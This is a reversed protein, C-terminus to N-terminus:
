GVTSMANLVDNGVAQTGGFVVGHTLTATQSQLYNSIAAPLQGSSPVLLMPGVNSPEGELVGGSLADPFRLATAAGFSTAKPFFTMAVAASTGFADQGYIATAGPDAGAAAKAGGVAYRTRAPHAALYAATAPAQVNGATLLIAGHAQIAAPVASLADAFNLGTAEFITTPNGLQQAVAVATAYEDAGYVRRVDYGLATLTADIAPSLAAPGGLVYVTAGPTLVRRIEALVRADLNGGAGGGPTILLPGNVSAALPGGALADAFRDSRAVVVAGASHATPFETASIAISTALADAGSIRSMQLESSWLFATGGGSGGSGGGPSAPPSSTAGFTTDINSTAPQGATVNVSTANLGSAVDPYWWDQCSGGPPCYIFHVVYSGTGLGLVTYNGSGNTGTQTGVSPVDGIPYAVVTVGALPHGSADSVHGALMGGVGLHGDVGTTPGHGVTVPTAAQLTSANHYIAPGYNTLFPAECGYLFSVHYTGPSLGDVSYTGDSATTAEPGFVFDRNAPDIFLICVGGLPAGDPGTVTGTISGITAGSGTIAFLSVLRGMGAGALENPTGLPALEDTFSLYGSATESPWIPTYTVTITCSAGVILTGTCTTAGITFESANPGMISLGTPDDTAPGNNTLTVSQTVPAGVASTFQLSNASVSRTRHPVTSNYLISGFLASAGGECHSEFRAAFTLVNGAADYTAADVIFRAALTNCGRGDGSADFGPHGAAQFPFRQAGEYTGPVLPQGSAAAFTLDFTDTGNSVTFMPYGLFLGPTVTPLTYQHGAGISDAYESDLFAGTFPTTTASALASAATASVAAPGVLAAGAVFILTVFFNLRARRRRGGGAAIV